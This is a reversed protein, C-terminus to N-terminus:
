RRAAGVALTLAALGVYIVFLTRALGVSNGFISTFGLVGSIVALVFLVVLWRLM